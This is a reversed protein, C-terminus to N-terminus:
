TTIMLSDIVLHAGANSTQGKIVAEKFTQSLESQLDVIASTIDDLREKPNHSLWVKSVRHTGDMLEVCLRPKSKNTGWKLHLVRQLGAVMVDQQEVVPSAKPAM